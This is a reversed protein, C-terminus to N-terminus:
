CIDDLDLHDPFTHRLVPRATGLRFTGTQFPWEIVELKDSMACGYTKEWYHHLWYFSCGGLNLVAGGESGSNCGRVRNRDFNRNEALLRQNTGADKKKPAFFCYVLPIYRAKSLPRATGFGSAQVWRCFLGVYIADSQAAPLSFVSPLYFILLWARFFKRRTM